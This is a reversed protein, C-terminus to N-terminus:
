FEALESQPTLQRQADSVAIYLITLVRAGETKIADENKCTTLVVMLDRILKFNPWIRGHVASDAARLRRFFIGMSKCHSFHQPWELSKMKIPVEENKCCFPVHM